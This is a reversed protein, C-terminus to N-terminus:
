LLSSAAADSPKIGELLAQGCPCAPTYFSPVVLWEEELMQKFTVAATAGRVAKAVQISCTRM